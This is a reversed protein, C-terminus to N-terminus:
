RWSGLPCGGFRDGGSGEEAALAVAAADLDVKLQALEAKKAAFAGGAELIAADRQAVAELVGEWQALLEAREAHLQRFDEAAKNLETQAAQM